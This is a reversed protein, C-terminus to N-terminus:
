TLMRTLLVWVLFTYFVYQNWYRLRCADSIWFFIVVGFIVVGALGMGLGAWSKTNVSFAIWGPVMLGVALCFFFAMITATIYRGTFFRHWGLCGFFCWACALSKTSSSSFLMDNTEINRTRISTNTVDSFCCFGTKKSNFVVDLGVTTEEKDIYCCASGDYSYTGGAEPIIEVTSRQAEYSNSM